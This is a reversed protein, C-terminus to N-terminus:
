VDNIGVDTDLFRELSREDKKLWISLIFLKNVAINM